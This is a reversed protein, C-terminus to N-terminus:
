PTSLEELLTQFKEVMEPGDLNPALSQTSKLLKRAETKKETATKQDNATRAEGALCLGTNYVIEYYDPPKKAARQFANRLTAWATTAEPWKTPDNEAMGQLIRAREIKPDLANPNAKILADVQVMAEEFQKDARLLGILVSQVRTLALVTQPTKNPIKEGAALARQYTEKALDKLGADSAFDGLAVMEPLSLQKRLALKNLIDLLAAKSADAKINAALATAQDPSEMKSLELVRGQDAKFDDRMLRSVSILASNVPSSDDGKAMLLLGCALAGALNKKVSHVRVASLLTRLQVNDLAEPNSALIKTELPTLMELAADIAGAELHMEALNLRCEAAVVEDEATSSKSAGALAQEFLKQAHPQHAKAAEDLKNAQRAMAYILRHAKASMSQARPFRDSAPNVKAYAAIAGEPDRKAMMLSGLAIRADDAEARNPWTELTFKVISNLKTEEATRDAATASSCLFLAANVALVAATPGLKAKPNARAFEDALKFAGAVDKSLYKALALQFHVFQVRDQDKEEKELVIARELQIVAEGPRGNKMASDANAFAEDFTKAEELDEGGAKGYLRALTIAENQHSSTIKIIDKLLKAAKAMTKVKDAAPQKEAEAAYAKALEVVVGYYADSKRAINDKLWDEIEAFFLDTRRNLQNLLQVRRLFNEGYFSLVAGSMDVRSDPEVGTVEEYADLAKDLNGLQEDVRGTWHHALLGPLAGGYGLWLSDLSKKAQELLPKIDKHKPDVFTQAIYYDVMALSFRSNLWAEEADFLAEEQRKKSMKLKPNRRPEDEGEEAAQTLAEFRAQFLKVAETFRPRAEEFAIKANALIKEKEKPDKQAHAQKLFSNGIALSLTGYTDFASGAEAHTAHEKLFKDLQTRTEDRLQKAEGTNETFRAAVQMCRALELDFTEVMSAPIKKEAELQKLYYTGLDGFGQKRLGNVFEQQLEAAALPLTSVLLLAACVLTRFCRSM